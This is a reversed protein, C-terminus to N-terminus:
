RYQLRNLQVPASLQREEAFGFIRKDLVDLIRSDEAPDFKRAFFYNGAALKRYDAMTVIRPRGCKSNVWNIYYHSDYSFNFAPNNLLVSQPLVENPINMSRFYSVFRPNHQTYDVFYDVARRSLTKWYSGGYLTFGPEFADAPLRVGFQLAYSTDFRFFPQANNFICRPLGAVRRMWAPLETTRFRWHYQFKYRNTAENKNWANRGINRFVPFWDMFGDYITTALMQEFLALSRTPYCQGSINVVWDYDIGAARAYTIADFYAQMISFDVRNIGSVHMVHVDDFQEFASPCISFSESNHSIVVSAQPSSRKITAVLRAIQPLNKFTQILYLVNM